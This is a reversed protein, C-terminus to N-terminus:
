HDGHSKCHCYTKTALTGTMPVKIRALTGGAPRKWVHLEMYWQNLSRGSEGERDAILYWMQEGVEDYAKGSIQIKARDWDDANDEEEELM